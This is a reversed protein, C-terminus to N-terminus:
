VIGTDLEQPVGEEHANRPSSGRLPDKNPRSAPDVAEEQGLGRRVCVSNDEAVAPSRKQGAAALACAGLEIPRALGATWEAVLDRGPRTPYVVELM